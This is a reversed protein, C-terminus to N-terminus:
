IGRLSASHGFSAPVLCPSTLVPLTLNPKTTEKLVHQINKALQMEEDKHKKTRAKADDMTKAEKMSCCLVRKQFIARQRATAKKYSSTAPRGYSLAARERVPAYTVQLPQLPMKNVVQLNPLSKSVKKPDRKARNWTECPALRRLSPLAPFSPQLWPQPVQSLESNGAKAENDPKVLMSGRSFPTLLINLPACAQSNTTSTDNTLAVQTPEAHAAMRFYKPSCASPLPPPTASTPTEEFECGNERLFLPMGVPHSDQVPVTMAFQLQFFTNPLTQRAPSETKMKLGSLITVQIEPARESTVIVMGFSTKRQTTHPTYYAAIATTNGPVWGSAV